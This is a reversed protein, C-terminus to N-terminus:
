NMIVSQHFDGRPCNFAHDVSFPLGCVCTDPLHPPDWGYRLCLGDRFAGKHLHYGYSKLPLVSLWISSGRENAIDFSKQLPSSLSERVKTAKETLFQAKNSKITLKAEHQVTYLELPITDSQDLLLSILPSSVLVSNSYQTPSVSVPDPDPINLGGLHCPLTFLERFVDNPADQGTLSPLLVTRIADELPHLLTAIDPCTRFVYNWRNTVGHSASYASQPQSLSISALCHIEDVWSQVKNDIWQNIFEPTGIPSGLVQAGNTVITLNHDSFLQQAADLHDPKVLLISKKANPFYGFKPGLDTLHHWWDLLGSLSGGASGDDAYWVQQIPNSSRILPLMGIAYMAMAMPDGQTTGEVSKISEGGIYMNVGVRYTNVLVRGFSPCLHLINRLAVERNLSNFANSADVLLLGDINPDSYLHRITHVAAECGSDQGACLQSPGVTDLIDANLITLIAKCIIRRAVEGVGIPRVGPSKDLAILRGAVFASLGTPHVYSTCLRCATSALSHCLDRYTKFSTCFRRWGMADVGSPGAAGTTRIATQRILESNLNDFLVFHPDHDPPLTENSLIVEPIVPGQPPHKEQLLDRVLSSSSDDSLVHSDLDLVRGKSKHTLLRLAQGVKGDTMLNAFDRALQDNKSPTNRKPLHSQITQGERLLESFAGEQWQSLRRDIHASIDKPRLKPSSCQLIM